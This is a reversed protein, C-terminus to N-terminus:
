ASQRRKRRHAARRHHKSRKRHQIAPLALPALTPDQRCKLYGDVVDVSGWPRVHAKLCTPTNAVMVVCLWHAANSDKKVCVARSGGARAAVTSQIAAKDIRQHIKVYWWAGIALLASLGGLTCVIATKRFSV